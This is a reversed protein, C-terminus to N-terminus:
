PTLRVRDRPFLIAERVNSLGLMEMTLREIGLGFGGHPPMGYRFAKLYMEFDDPRLGKSKIREVLLDHQHIRQAGSTVELGKHDLDFSHSHKGDAHPMAYFPKIAAPYQHIFYFERGQRTMVDGLLREEETGLDNGWPVEMGEKSLLELAEDYPVRRFPLEPVQPSVGLLSLESAHREKVSSWIHAILRELLTMVDEESRVFAMEVDIATSENLHRRTNHEEARFYWAIEFVRDLGTAMMMQKYLQPSQALFAQKEFYKVPFLDTGGESAASIIKPTHVEVFGNKAFFDKAGAVIGSRVKFIAAVEPKRIDLFRNDLRTDLDAGVKDAVGLPLPTRAEGLVAVEKPFIEYGNRAQPNAKVEGRVAVVSERPVKVLTEVLAADLKKKPLVIQLTGARDRLIVFAIAGLERQEQVWGAVVAETGGDAPTLDLSYRRLSLDVSM